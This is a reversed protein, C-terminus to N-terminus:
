GTKISKAPGPGPPLPDGAPPKGEGREPGPPRTERRTGGTREPEATLSFFHRQCSVLRLGSHIGGTTQHPTRLMPPGQCRARGQGDAARLRPSRLTCRDQRGGKRGPPPAPTLPRGMRPRLGGVHSTYGMLKLAQREGQASATGLSGPRNEADARGCRVTEAGPAVRHPYPLWAGQYIYVGGGGIAAPGAAFFSLRQPSACRSDPAQGKM